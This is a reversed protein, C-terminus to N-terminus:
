AGEQRDQEANGREVGRRVLRVDHKRRAAERIQCAGRAAAREANRFIGVLRGTPPERDAHRHNRRRFTRREGIGDDNQLSSGSLIGDARGSEERLAERRQEIIAIQQEDIL